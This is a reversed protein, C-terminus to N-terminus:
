FYQPNLVDGHAEAFTPDRVIAAVLKLQMTEQADYKELLAM